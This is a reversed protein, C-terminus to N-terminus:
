VIPRNTLQLLVEEFNGEVFIGNSKKIAMEMMLNISNGFDENLLYGDNDIMYGSSHTKVPIRNAVLEPLNGKKDIFGCVMKKKAFAYGIEFSTGDDILAGRFSNCNAIVLDCDDILGCNNLFIREAKKLGLEDGPEADFPSVGEYGYKTCIAKTQHFHDTCNPLFVEPGALYIRKKRTVNLKTGELFEQKTDM